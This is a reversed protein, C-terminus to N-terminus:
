HYHVKMPTQFHIDNKIDKNLAVLWTLESRVMEKSNSGLHIKLLYKQESTVLQYTLNDSKGLFVVNKVQIGYLREVCQKIMEESLNQMILIRSKYNLIAGLFNLDM